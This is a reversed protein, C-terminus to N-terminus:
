LDDFNLPEDTLEEDSVGSLADDEKKDEMETPKAGNLEQGKKVEWASLGLNGHGVYNDSVFLEGQRNIGALTPFTPTMYGQKNIYGNFKLDVETGIKKNVITIFANALEDFSKFKASHEQLKKYGEPYIVELTQAIVIKTQDWRSPTPYEHGDSAKRTGREGDKEPDPWFLSLDVSGEDNTYHIIILKYDMGSKNTGEKIEAGDFKVHHIEFPNLKKFKPTSISSENSSISFNLGTM